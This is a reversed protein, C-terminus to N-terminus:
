SAGGFLTPQLAPEVPPEAEPTEPAEPESYPEYLRVSSWAPVSAPTPIRAWEQDGTVYQQASVFGGHILWKDRQYYDGDRTPDGKHLTALNPRRREFAPLYLLVLEGEAPLADKAPTWELPM